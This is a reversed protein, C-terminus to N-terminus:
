KEIEVDRPKLGFDIQEYVDDAPSVHEPRRATRRLHAALKRAFEAVISANEPRGAVNMM